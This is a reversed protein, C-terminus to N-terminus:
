DWKMHDIMHRIQNIMRLCTADGPKCMNQAGFIREREQLNMNDDHWKHQRKEMMELLMVLPCPNSGGGHVETKLVKKALKKWVASELEVNFGMPCDMQGTHLHRLSPDHDGIRFLKKEGTRELRETEADIGVLVKHFREAIASLLASLSQVNQIATFSEKPCRECQVIAAATTMAKRLEPIVAPFSFSKLSQLDSLTLYMISLCTCPGEPQAPELSIPTDISAAEQAQPNWLSPDITDNPGFSFDMNSGDMLPAAIISENSLSFTAASFADDQPLQPLPLGTFDGFDPPSILGFESFALTTPLEYSSHPPIEPPIEPTPEPPTVEDERRRKRPRGMQKQPSYVCRIGERACRSCQPSEGSCKLKRTRCDDCASHLKEPQIDAM